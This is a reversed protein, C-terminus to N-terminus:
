KDILRDLNWSLPTSGRSGKNNKPSLSGQSMLMSGQSLGELRSSIDSLGLLNTSPTKSSQQTSLLSNSNFNSYQSYDMRTSLSTINSPSSFLSNEAPSPESFPNPFSSSQTLVQSPFNGHSQSPFNGSSQNSFSNTDTWNSYNSSM